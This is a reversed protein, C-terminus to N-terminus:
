AFYEDAITSRADVGSNPPCGFSLMGNKYKPNKPPLDENNDLGGGRMANSIRERCCDFIGVVWAGPTSILTCLFLELPFKWRKADSDNMVAFTTNDM